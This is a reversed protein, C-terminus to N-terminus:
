GTCSWAEATDRSSLRRRLVLGGDAPLQLFRRGGFHRPPTMTSLSVCQFPGKRSEVKRPVRFPGGVSAVRVGIGPGAGWILVSARAAEAALHEDSGRSTNFWGAGLTYARWRVDGPRSKEEGSGSSMGGQRLRSRTCARSAKHHSLLIGRVVFRGVLVVDYAGQVVRSRNLDVGVM